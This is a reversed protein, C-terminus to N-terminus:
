VVSKRDSQGILKQFEDIPIKRSGGTAYIPSSSDGSNKSIEILDKKKADLDVVGYIPLEDIKTTSIPLSNITGM